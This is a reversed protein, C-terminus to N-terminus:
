SICFSFHFTLSDGEKKIIKKLCVQKQRRVESAELLFIEFLAFSEERFAPKLTVFIWLARM